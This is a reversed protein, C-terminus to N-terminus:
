LYPGMIECWSTLEKTLGTVSVTHPPSCPSPWAPLPPHKPRPCTILPANPVAAPRCTLLRLALRRPMPRNSRGPTLPRPSLSAPQTLLQLGFTGTMGRRISRQSGVSSSSRSFVDIMVWIILYSLIINIIYCPEKPYKFTFLWDSGETM